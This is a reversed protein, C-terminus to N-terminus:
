FQLCVLAFYQRDERKSESHFRRPRPIELIELDRNLVVVRVQVLLHAVQNTWRMQRKKACRLSVVENVASEAISNSIPM